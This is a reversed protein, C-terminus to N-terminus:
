KLDMRLLHKHASTTVTGWHNLNEATWHTLHRENENGFYPGSPTWHVPTTVWAARRARIKILDLLASGSKEDLHELTDACVILDYYYTEDRVIRSMLLEVADGIYINNYIAHIAPTIYPEHIEIGDIRSRKDTAPIGHFVDLYERALYGFKGNGLGIDLLSSAGSEMIETCIESLFDPRSSPM